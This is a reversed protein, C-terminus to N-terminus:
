RNIMKREEYKKLDVGSRVLIAIWNLSLDRASCNM